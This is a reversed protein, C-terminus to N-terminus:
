TCGKKQATQYDYMHIWGNAAFKLGEEVDMAQHYTRSDKAMPDSNLVSPWLLAQGQKPMVTIGLQPFDTGGGATVNSLYLFFTLIRPGCQRDKQHPIYDHHTRYFAGKEYKLLQLDESNGPPIAMVKAMREHVLSPITEERCGHFTSCWANESTRRTSQVADHSGDFKKEGVDESRKYVYKYGLQIM